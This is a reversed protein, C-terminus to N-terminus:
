PPENVIYLYDKDSATKPVIKVGAAAWLQIAEKLEASCCFDASVVYPVRGNPWLNGARFLGLGGESVASSERIKSVPFRVDGGIVADEGEITYHVKVEGAAADIFGSKESSAGKANSIRATGSSSCGTGLFALAGGLVAASLTFKWVFNLTM